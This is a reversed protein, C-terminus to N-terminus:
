FFELKEGAMAMVAALTYIGLENMWRIVGRVYPDFDTIPLDGLVPDILMGRGPSNITKTSEQLFSIFDEYKIQDGVEDFWQETGILIKGAISIFKM